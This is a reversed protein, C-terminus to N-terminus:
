VGIKNKCYLHMRNLESASLVRFFIMLEVLDGSWYQVVTAGTTNMAGLYLTNTSAVQPNGTKNEIFTGNKYFDVSWNSNLVSTFVQFVNVTFQAATTIYDTATFSNYRQRGFNRAIGYGSGLNFSGKTYLRADATGVDTTTLTAIVTMAGSYSNAASNACTLFQNGSFRIVNRGNIINRKFVPQNAGSAQVFNNGKGSFDSINALATGDAPINGPDNLPNDGNVWINVGLDTPLINLSPVIIM